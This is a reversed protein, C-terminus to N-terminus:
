TAKLSLRSDYPTTATIVLPQMADLERRAAEPSVGIALLQVFEAEALRQPFTAFPAAGLVLGLRGHESIAVVLKPRTRLLNLSGDGL